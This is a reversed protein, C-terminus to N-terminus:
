AGALLVDEDKICMKIASHVQNVFFLRKWACNKANILTLLSEACRNIVNQFMVPLVGCCKTCMGCDTSVSTVCKVAFVTFNVWIIAENRACM